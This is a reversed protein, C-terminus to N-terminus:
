TSNAFKETSWSHNKFRWHSESTTSYFEYFSNNQWLTIQLQQQSQASFVRQISKIVSLRERKRISHKQTQESTMEDSDSTACSFLDVRRKKVEIAQWTSRIDRNCTKLMIIASSSSNTSDAFDTSNLSNISSLSNLFLLLFARNYKSAKSYRISRNRYIESTQKMQQRWKFCIRRWLEHDENCNVCCRKNSPMVCEEIHHKDACKACRQKKKCFRIMHDFEFCRYCQTIHCNKEFLKCSCEQYSDLMNENMLRNTMAEIAIEVILSSHTKESEVVKKLWVIRLIKLNEHLRANDKILRKIIVKQNSTDITIRVEHALVTFIRRVIRTSNAIEKAWTQSRKLNARVESSVAHLTIDESELKRLSMILNRQATLVNTIEQLIQEISKKQIKEIKKREAIKMMVERKKRLSSLEDRLRQKRTTVEERTVNTWSTIRSSFRMSDQTQMSDSTQLQKNLLQVFTKLKQVNKAIFANQNKNNKGESDNWLRRMLKVAVEKWSHDKSKEKELTSTQILLDIINAVYKKDNRLSKSRVNSNRRSSDVNSAITESGANSCNM